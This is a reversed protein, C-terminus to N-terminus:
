NVSRHQALTQETILALSKAVAEPDEGPTVVLVAVGVINDTTCYVDQFLFSAVPNHKRGTLKGEEDFWLYGLGHLSKMEIMSCVCADYLKELRPEYGTDPYQEFFGELEAETLKRPQVGFGEPLLYVISPREWHYGDSSETSTSETSTSETSTSKIAM